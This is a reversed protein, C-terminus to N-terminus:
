MQSWLEFVLACILFSFVHPEWCHGVRDLPIDYEHIHFKEKSFLPTWHFTEKLRNQKIYNLSKVFKPVVRPIKPFLWPKALKLQQCYYPFADLFLRNQLSELKLSERSKRGLNTIIWYLKCPTGTHLDFSHCYSLLLGPVLVDGFGLMSFNIDCVEM